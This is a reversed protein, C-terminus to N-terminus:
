LGSVVSPAQHRPWAAFTPEQTKRASGQGQPATTRGVRGPVKQVIDIGGLAEVEASIDVDANGGEQLSQQLCLLPHQHQGGPAAEVVPLARVNVLDPNGPGVEKVKRTEVSVFFM